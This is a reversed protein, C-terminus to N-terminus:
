CDASFSVALIWVCADWPVRMCMSGSPFAMPLFTSPDVM